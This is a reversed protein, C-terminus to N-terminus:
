VKADTIFRPPGGLHRNTPFVVQTPGRAPGPGELWTGWIEEVDLEELLWSLEVSSLGANWAVWTANLVSHISDDHNRSSISLM